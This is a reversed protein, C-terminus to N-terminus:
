NFTADYLQGSEDPGIPVLFLVNEGLTRNKIQYLHQPLITEAPGRFLLSYPQRADVEPDFKGIPKIQILELSLAEGQEPSVVFIQGLCAQFDKITVTSLDKM